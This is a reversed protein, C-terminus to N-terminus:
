APRVFLRRRRVVSSLAVWGISAPPQTQCNPWLLSLLPSNLGTETPCSTSWLALCIINIVLAHFIAFVFDIKSPALLQFGHNTPSKVSFVLYLILIILIIFVLFTLICIYSLLAFYLIFSLFCLFNPYRLVFVLHFNSFVFYYLASYLSPHPLQSAHNTPPPSTQHCGGSFVAAWIGLNSICRLLESSSWRTPSAVIVWCVREEHCLLLSLIWM